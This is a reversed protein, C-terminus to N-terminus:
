RSLISDRCRTKKDMEMWWMQTKWIWFIDGENRADGTTNKQVDLKRIKCAARGFSRKARRGCQCPASVLKEAMALLTTRIMERWCRAVAFRVKVTFLHYTIVRWWFWKCIALVRVTRFNREEGSPLLSTGSVDTESSCNKKKRPKLRKARAGIPLAFFYFVVSWVQGQINQCDRTEGERSTRVDQVEATRGAAM